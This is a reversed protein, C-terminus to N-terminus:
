SKEYIVRYGYNIEKVSIVRGKIKNLRKELDVGWAEEALTEPYLEKVKIKKNKSNM